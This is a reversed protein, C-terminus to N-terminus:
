FENIMNSKKTLKSCCHLSASKMDAQLKRCKCVKNTSLPLVKCSYSNMVKTRPFPDSFKGASTKEEQSQEQTSGSETEMPVSKTSLKATEEGDGEVKEGCSFCLKHRAPELETECKPCKMQLCKKEEM